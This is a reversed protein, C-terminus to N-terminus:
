ADGLVYLMGEDEVAATLDPDHEIVVVDRGAGHLDRAIMSGIRGFGCVITHGSLGAISRKLQRRRLVSRLEGEVVMVVIISLIITGAVLGGTVVLLTWARDLESLGHESGHGITTITIVTVYIADFWLYGPELLYYGVSSAFIFSLLVLLPVALRM